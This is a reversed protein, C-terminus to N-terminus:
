KEYEYSVYGRPTLSRCTRRPLLSSQNRTELAAAAPRRSCRGRRWGESGGEALPLPIGSTPRENFPSPKIDTKATAAAAAPLSAEGRPLRGAALSPPSAAAHWNDGWAAARRREVPAGQALSAWTRQQSFSGFYNMKGKTFTTGRM